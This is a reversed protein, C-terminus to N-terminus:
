NLTKSRRLKCSLRRLAAAPTTMRRRKEHFYTRTQSVILQFIESVNVNDKASTEMYQHNWGNTIMCYAKDKSIFRDSTTLDSKNGVVLIPVGESKEQIILDRIKAMNEFSSEDGVSYVLVFAESNTIALRRVNAFCYAGPTDFIDLMVRSGNVDIDTIYRDQITAAYGRHFKGHILRNVIASKGVASAGMVAIRFSSESGSTSSHFSPTPLSMNISHFVAFAPTWSRNRTNLNENANRRHQLRRNDLAAQLLFNSSAGRMAIKFVDTVDMDTKSSVEMYEHGWKSKVVAEILARHVHRQRSKLDLKNGVIVIPAHRTKDIAVIQDRIDKVAKFSHRDVLSYVLIFADAQVM